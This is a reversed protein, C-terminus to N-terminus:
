CLGHQFAGLVLPNLHCIKKDLFDLYDLLLIVLNM